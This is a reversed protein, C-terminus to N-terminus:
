LVFEFCSMLIDKDLTLEEMCRVILYLPNKADVLIDKLTKFDHILDETDNIPFNWIEPDEIIEGFGSMGCVKEDFEPVEVINGELSSIIYDIMLNYNKLIQKKDEENQPVFGTILSCLVGRLKYM